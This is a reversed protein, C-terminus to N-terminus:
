QNPRSSAPRLSEASVGPSISPDSSDLYLNSVGENQSVNTVVAM